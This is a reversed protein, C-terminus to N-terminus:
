FKVGLGSYLGYSNMNYIFGDNSYDIYMYRYGLEAFVNRTINVGITAQVNWAIQSGAGFGGVDGQGALFLWRTLNVQGRLGIIPDFWWQDGAGYTPTVEEIRKAIEKALKKKAKSAAAQLAPDVAGAAAALKAQAAARVYEGLVEGVRGGTLRGKLFDGRVLQRIDRDRLLLRRLERESVRDGVLGIVEERAGELAATARAVLSEVASDLAPDLRQALAATVNESIENIRSENVSADVQTGLFNYRAGAYVDLFGRRDDIVRYALALSVLSQQLGLNIDDYIKNTPAASASLAAYYGDALLGWRGKRVEGRAFIGWDLHQLITRSSFNVHGPPLGKAGVEGDLGMAWVYPELVFGWGNPDKGPVLEFPAVPRLISDRTFNEIPDFLSHRKPEEPAPTGAHTVSVAALLALLLVSFKRM